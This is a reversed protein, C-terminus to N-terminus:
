VLEHNVVESELIESFDFDIVKRVTPCYAKDTGKNPLRRTTYEYFIVVRGYIPIDVVIRHTFM